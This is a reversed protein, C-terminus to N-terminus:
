IECGEVYRACINRDDGIYLFSELRDELGYRNAIWEDDEIVLADFLYGKEFSGTKGFFSGGGKTGLYFAESASLIEYEPKRMNVLKSLQIARVMAENLAIKHGGAIDSGLGIQLGMNLYKRLPMIGSRVNVNSDPCHTLTVKNRKVRNLEDKDLYIGHAMVTPTQGFLGHKDYVDVYNKSDPFLAGVWNIEDINESVHSQVPINYKEALEGLRQLLDETSTPAFRPTIIPRVRKEDKYKEILYKTGKISEETTEIIFDPANRDMNVKGVYAGIGKEKLVEFLIETGKTSTSGFICARLTGKAVLQDAFRKYVEKAFSVDQFQKELDFTYDNLWDLLKKTMGMGCQLFQAAHLHLDVFGPIIFREGYDKVTCNEYKQPLVKYIGEIIGNISIIYHDEYCEFRNSVKTFIINGKVILIKEM